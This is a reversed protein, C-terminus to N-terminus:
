GTCSKEVCGSDDPLIKRLGEPSVRRPRRTGGGENPKETTQLVADWDAYKTGWVDNLKGIESYKKKLDEVFVKKAPQAAPSTIAAVALSREGGWSIENDVFYGLCWPADATSAALNKANYAVSNEFEKSFPDPFKGWYGSSGMNATYVTKRMEYISRDSWNAITNMGWSRLRKHVLGAHINKWDDGYKRMLNYQTFNFTDYEGKNEYYNHPAWSGKGYCTRYAPHNKEPLGEFYFERDTRPTVANGNIM